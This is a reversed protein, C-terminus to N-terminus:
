LLGEAHEAEHQVVLDEIVAIAQKNEEITAQIAVTSLGKEHRVAATRANRGLNSKEMVLRAALRACCPSQKVQPM